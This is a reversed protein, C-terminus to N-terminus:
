EKSDGERVLVFALITDVLALFFTLILSTM